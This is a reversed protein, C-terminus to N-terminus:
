KILLMRKTQVFTGAELRYFYVGSPVARADWTISYRGPQKVGQALTQIEKGLVDYVKLTVHGAEAIAFRIETSPNFPNPYNQELRFALPQSSENVGTPVTIAIPESYHVTADLDIQKLRYRWDGPATTPDIFTYWHPDLTTGHGPVFSNEITPFAGVDGLRKQVEFGYNNTESITMWDLQVLNSPALRATFSALQVPLPAENRFYDVLGTFAPASTDGPPQISDSNAAYVAISDVNIHHIVTDVKIWPGGESTKYYQTFVSDTRDLRILLPTTGLPVSSLLHIKQSSYQGHNDFTYLLANMGASDSFIECRVFNSDDQIALLGQIQYQRTQVGDFKAYIGFDGVDSGPPGVRQVLRPARNGGQGSSVPDRSLGFPIAISAHTGTMSQTCGGRPDVFTWFTDLTGGNFESQRIGQAVSLSTALLLCTTIFLANYHKMINGRPLEDIFLLKQLIGM